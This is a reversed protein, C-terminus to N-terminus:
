FDLNIEGQNWAKQFMTDSPYINVDCVNKLRRAVQEFSQQELGAWPSRAAFTQIPGLPSIVKSAAEVVDDMDLHFADLEKELYLNKALTTNMM